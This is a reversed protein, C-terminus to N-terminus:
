KRPGKMAVSQRRSTKRGKKKSVTKEPPGKPPPDMEMSERLASRLRDEASRGDSM